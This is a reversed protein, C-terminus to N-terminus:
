SFKVTFLSGDDGGWYFHARVRDKMRIVSIDEIMDFESEYDDAIVIVIMKVVVNIDDSIIEAVKSGCSLIEVKM